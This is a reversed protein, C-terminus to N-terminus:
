ISPNMYQKLQFHLDANQSADHNDIKEDIDSFARKYILNMDKYQTILDEMKTFGEECDCILDNKRAYTM